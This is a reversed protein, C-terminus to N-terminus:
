RKHPRGHEIVDMLTHPIYPRGHEKVAMYTVSKSAADAKKLLDERWSDSLAPLSSRKSPDYPPPELTQPMGLRGRLDNAIKDFESLDM